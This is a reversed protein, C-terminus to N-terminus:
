SPTPTARAATPSPAPGSSSQENSWTSGCYVYYDKAETPHCKGSLNSYWPTSADGCKDAPCVAARACATACSLGDAAGCKALCQGCPANKGMLAMVADSTNAATSFAALESPTCVAGAPPALANSVTGGGGACSRHARPAHPIPITVATRLNMHPFYTGLCLLWGCPNPDGAGSSVCTMTCQLGPPLAALPLLQLQIPQM